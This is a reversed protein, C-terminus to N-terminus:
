GRSSMFIKISKKARTVATYAWRQKDLSSRGVPEWVLTVNDYESGQAKHCTCVCAFDVRVGKAYRSLYDPDYHRVMEDYNIPCAEVVLEGNQRYLDATANPRGLFDQSREIDKAIVIDGNMLGTNTDNQVVMLEEAEDPWWIVKEDGRAHGQAERITQVLAHRTKHYGVVCQGAGNGVLDEVQPRGYVIEVGEGYKEGINPVLGKQIDGALDLIASGEAQRWVKSLKAATELNHFWSSGKVPPLQDVDGIAVVVDPREVAKLLDEAIEESVMSAEDIVLVNAKVLEEAPDFSFTPEVQSAISSIEKRLDKLEARTEGEKRRRSLEERLEVLRSELPHPIPKYLRAHITTAHTGTLETVRRAARGTPAVVTCLMEEQEAWEVITRILSTKGTGARGTIKLVENPKDWSSLLGLLAKSREDPM